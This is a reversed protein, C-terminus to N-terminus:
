PEPAQEHEIASLMARAREMQPASRLAQELDRRAATQDGLSLHVEARLVLNASTPRKALLANASSLARLRDARAEESREMRDLVKARELLWLTELVGQALGADIETLADDYRGQAILADVLPRRLLPTPGLRSLGEQYVAAAEPYRGGNELLRGKELYLDLSPSLAIAAELDAIALEPRGTKTRIRARETYAVPGGGTKSIWVTLESEAVMDQGLAALTLGKELHVRADDPADRTAQQLDLLAQDLQGDLRYYRARRLRADVDGPDEGLSRSEREIDHQLGEHAGSTAPGM